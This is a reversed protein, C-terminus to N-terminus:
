QQLLELSFLNNGDDYDASLQAECVPCEVRHNADLSVHNGNTAELRKALEEVIPSHARAEEVQRLLEDDSLNAYKTHWSM